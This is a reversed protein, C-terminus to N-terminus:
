SSDAEVRRAVRGDPGYIAITQKPHEKLLRAKAVDAGVDVVKKVVYILGGILASVVGGVTIFGWLATPLHPM